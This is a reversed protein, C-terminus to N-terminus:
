YVVNYPVFLIKIHMKNQFKEIYSTLFCFDFIDYSIYISYLPTSSVNVLSVGFCAVWGWGGDPAVKKPQPKM